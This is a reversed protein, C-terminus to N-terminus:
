ADVLLERIQEAEASYDVLEEFRDRIARCMQRHREPDASIDRILAANEAPSRQDLDIATVGDIWLGSAMKGAYHSAHGILPRGIAAWGHIVHGFGDGHIKDHWGWGSAAMRETIATAPKLNGDIGDIGYMHFTFEPLEGRYWEWLPYCAISPFCNVLSAVSHTDTPPRYGYLGVADIEQHYVIGRGLMPMESSNLVIPDLSWDIYQGTNGVQMVFTADCEHALRAFGHQNEQVSAVIFDWDMESFQDATVGRILREPYESDTTTFYGDAPTWGDHIALYQQALRDDGWVEGFRWYGLDWWGHGIPTYLEWAFRDEFLLALSEYLGAHHRDALVRM